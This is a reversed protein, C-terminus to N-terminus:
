SITELLDERIIEDKANNIKIKRVIDTVRTMVKLKPYETLKSRLFEERRKTYEIDAGVKNEQKFEEKVKNWVKTDKAALKVNEKRIDDIDGNLHILEYSLLPNSSSWTEWETKPVLDYAIIAYYMLPKDFDQGLASLTNCRDKLVRLSTGDNVLRTITDKPVVAKRTKGGSEVYIDFYGDERKRVNEVKTTVLKRAKKRGEYEVSEDQINEFFDIIEM